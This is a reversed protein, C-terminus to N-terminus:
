TTSRETPTTSEEHRFLRASNFAVILAGAVQLTAAPVPQLWGAGSLALGGVILTMAVALNEFIIRRTGRSLRILFPIRHLDNSMLAIASSHLAADSGAAGMAIGTDGAALAPADNVGDGVVAVQYGEAQLSRVTAVKGEPLCEAVFEPCSIDAAVREAVSQRDGTVMVIRKIKLERLATLAAAAEPRVKDQLGIWGLHKKEIAVDIRSAGDNINTEDDIELDIAVGEERLWSARGCLITRGEVVARLGLGTVEDFETPKVLAIGAERALTLIAQAAPHRSFQEACAAARVLDDPVTDPLPTLKSVTLQGTTLTGTKDLVFATTHGAAELDAIDKILIGQRAANSLAAVMATPTALVVAVPCAVILITIVRTIDATFVWTLAAIMLIVPTYYGVYRDMIRLMPLRTQEASLILDRVKGLTTDAGARTVAFELVGTLNIAGAFVTDGEAKDIPLSEGTITAENMASRGRVVLGDAPAAEGPRLRLVNGPALTAAAVTSENGADDVRTARTPTLRILSEIAAHAGQATRTEILLAALMLLAVIGATFHDQRILLAMVALVVLENMRLEGRRLDRIALWLLPILLLVAGLAASLDSVGRNEPMTLRTLLSNFLLASGIVIWAINWAPFRSPRASASSVDPHM